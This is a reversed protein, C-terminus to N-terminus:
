INYLEPKYLRGRGARNEPRMLQRGNKRASQASLSRLHNVGAELRARLRGSPRQAVQPLHTAAAHLTHLGEGPCTMSLLLPRLANLNRFPNHRPAVM